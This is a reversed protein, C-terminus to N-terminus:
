VAALTRLDLVQDGFDDHPTEPATSAPVGGTTQETSQGPSVDDDDDNGGPAHHLIFFFVTFTLFGFGHICLAYLKCLGRHRTLALCCCQCLAM